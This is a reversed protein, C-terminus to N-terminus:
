HSAPRPSQSRRSQPRHSQPRAPELLGRLVRELIDAFRDEGTGAADLSLAAIHPHTGAEVVHALYRNVGAVHATQEARAFSVVVLTLVAFAELKTQDDAPHEALVTLVWELVDVGAPGIVPRTSILETLWPHRRHVERARIGLQVLDAVPDGTPAPLEYGSAAADSMLDLLDDRSSVYRYLSGAGTGLEAAVRRMSVADLGDRDALAVAAATIDARSRQAPRGVGGGEPRLWIVEDGAM